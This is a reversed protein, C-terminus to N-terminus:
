TKNKSILKGLGIFLFFLIVFVGFLILINSITEPWGLETVNIFPYPYFGSISGRLLIFALYCLPYILFTPISKWNLERKREHFLWFLIVMTPIISHLLEDVIMQIGEPHWIHRLAVQYVLGVVTIYVTVATLSGTRTLNKGGSNTATLLLSTFYVSVLINTLITFFSFFRIIMEQVPTTRNIYMLVLQAIVAFWGTISIVLVFFRKM